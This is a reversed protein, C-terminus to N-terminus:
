PLFPPGLHALHAENRKLAEEVLAPTSLNWHISSVNEIGHQDLGYLSAFRDQGSM